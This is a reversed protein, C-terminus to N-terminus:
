DKELISLTNECVEMPDAIAACVLCNKAAEIKERLTEIEKMLVDCDHHYEGTLDFTPSAM